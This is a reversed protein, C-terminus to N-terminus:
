VANGIVEIVEASSQSPPIPLGKAALGELHFEMPEKISDRLEELTDGSAICGPLDPVFAGYGEPGKEVIVTDKM